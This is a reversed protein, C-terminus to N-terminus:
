ERPTSPYTFTWSVEFPEWWAAVGTAADTHRAFGNKVPPDLHYTLRYQGAGNLKLNDAYHPGDRAVMPHLSGTASWDSGQKALHYSVGVYPVWEGKEFGQTNGEAAHIDAELHVLDTMDSPMPMIADLDLAIGLLYNAAIMLGNRELPAGAVFEQAVVSRPAPQIAVPEGAPSSLVLRSFGVAGLATALAITLVTRQLRNM